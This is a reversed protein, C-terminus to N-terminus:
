VAHYQSLFEDFSYVDDEELQTQQQVSEETFRMLEAHKADSIGRGLLEVQHKKAQELMTAAFSDGNAIALMVKGSPTLKSDAVKDLQNNIAHKYSDSLTSYAQSQHAQDLLTAIPTIETLLQKAKQKFPIAKGSQQLQLSPKRGALIVQQQNYKIEKLEEPTIDPSDSLLCYLLFADLFRIQQVDIGVPMFPNTDLIRIEVYEVGREKLAALPKEGARAVRKPRIESYYENELQLINSNLQRYQGDIKVGLKEYGSDPQQIAQTMGQIYSDLNNHSINLSAQAKSQYGLDSMRLSTAFPLGLTNKSLTDLQHDKNDMFSSDLVPSAGFLYSLLWSHRNVNRILGFYRESKFAQLDGKSGWLLQYYPWFAEPMSFNYHIGAISQMIRGYRHALGQRYIHKMQGINSTGYQAIPISEEGALRCPMSAPWIYEDKLNRQTFNHLDSLYNISHDIERFVPTIFELLAESYDTTICSHTLASGLAQPHGTQATTAQPTIRLGEKEIGRQIQTLFPYSAPTNLQQLRAQFLDSL